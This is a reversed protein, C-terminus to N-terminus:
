DFWRSAIGRGFEARAKARLYDGASVKRGNHHYVPSQAMSKVDDENAPPPMNARWYDWLLQSLVRCAGARFETPYYQGACYDLRGSDDLTLRGGGQLAKRIHGAEISDRWGIASLMAEADHLQREARRQDSRYSSVSGYNYPNFGPRGRVFAHLMALLEARSLAAATKRTKTSM